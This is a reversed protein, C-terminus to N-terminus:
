ERTPYAACLPIGIVTENLQIIESDITISCYPHNERLYEVLPKCMQALREMEEKTDVM